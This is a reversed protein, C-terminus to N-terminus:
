KADGGSQLVCGMTIAESETMPTHNTATIEPYVSCPATRECQGAWNCLSCYKRAIMCYHMMTDSTTGIM